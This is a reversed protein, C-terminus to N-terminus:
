LLNSFSASEKVLFVNESTVNGKVDNEVIKVGNVGQLQTNYEKELGDKGIYDERWYNGSKDKAPYSVYGLIHSFGGTKYMRTSFDTTVSKKNSALEVKNRDYIIGRDAFLISRDLTNNESRKLYVDGKQIQLYELKALFVVGCLFFFLGLFLISKKSVPKEIRGEFQQMDFNGINESDLFIEDPAVYADANKIKRGSRKRIM